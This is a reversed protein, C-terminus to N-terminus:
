WQALDGDGACNRSFLNEQVLPHDVKVLVDQLLSTHPFKALQFASAREQATCVTASSELFLASVLQFGAISSFLGHLGAFNM